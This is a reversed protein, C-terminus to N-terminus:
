RVNMLGRNRFFVDPNQFDTHFQVPSSLLIRDMRSSSKSTKAALHLVNRGM